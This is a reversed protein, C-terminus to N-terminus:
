LILKINLCSKLNDKVACGPCAEKRYVSYVMVPKLAAKKSLHVPPFQAKVNSCSGRTGASTGACRPRASDHSYFFHGMKSQLAHIM